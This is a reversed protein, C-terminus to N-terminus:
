PIKPPTEGLAAGGHRAVILLENELSPHPNMIQKAKKKKKKKKSGEGESGLCSRTHIPNPLNSRVQKHRHTLIMVEFM